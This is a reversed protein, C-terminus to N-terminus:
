GDSDGRIKGIILGIGKIPLWIPATVVKLVFVLGKGIPEVMKGLIFLVIVIIIMWVWWPLSFGDNPNDPTTIVPPTSDHVVDIPAAVVPIVVSEEEVGFTVDIIDFDLDVEQQAFYANSDVVKWYEASYWPDKEKLLTAEQSLYESVRYRFLYVVSDTNNAQYYSYFRDFDSEAIYLRDCIDKTTGSFDDDNVAYIAPMELMTSDIKEGFYYEYFMQEITMNSLSYMEDARINVDTFESDVSEFICSAYRDNILFGGYKTASELMAAMMAESETVYSDASNEADGANFLLYLPSIVGGYETRSYIANNQSNDLNYSYGYERMTSLAAASVVSESFAGLYMYDLDENHVSMDTGLFGSIEEYADQNGTVLYPLLRANLWTAHVASMEGYQAIYDRPVAFYVSHLNDQSYPTKGNFNEPRYFTSEVDLSLTETDSTVCHLTSVGLSNAGYGAAYGSYVYEKGVTIALPTANGSELLEIEGIEYVRSASTVSGLLRLKDQETLDIGYKYFLREYNSESSVSLLTMSYKRFNGGAGGVRMSIMNRNSKIFHLGQPNYVYVYLNYNGQRDQDYSYCYEIFHFLETPKSQDFSYDALNFAKGDVTADKLDDLVNQESFETINSDAFALRLPPQGVTASCVVGFVFLILLSLSIMFRKMRKIKERVRTKM